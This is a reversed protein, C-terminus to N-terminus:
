PDLRLMTDAVKDLFGSEKLKQLRECLDVFHELRATQEKYDSGIFFSRIEALSKSMAATEAVVAFRTQRIDEIWLKVKASYSEYTGGLDKIIEDAISKADKAARVLPAVEKPLRKSVEDCILWQIDNIDMHPEGNVMKVRVGATSIYERNPSEYEPVGVVDEKIPSMNHSKPKKTKKQPTQPPETQTTPPMAWWPAKALLMSAQKDIPKWLIDGGVVKEFPGVLGKQPKSEEARQGYVPIPPDTKVDMGKEHRIWEKLHASLPNFKM